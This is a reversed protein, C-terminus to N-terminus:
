VIKLARALIVFGRNEKNPSLVQIVGAMLKHSLLTEPTILYFGFAIPIVGFPTRLSEVIEDDFESETRDALKAIRDIAITNLLTRAVLSGIIIVFCIILDNLGVGRIGMQWTEVVLEFFEEFM